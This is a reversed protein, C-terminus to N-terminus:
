VSHKAEVQMGKFLLHLPRVVEKTKLQNALEGACTASYAFGHLYDVFLYLADRRTSEDIALNAIAVNFREAFMHVPGVVPNALMAELLGPYARLTDVYSVALKGLENEWRLATKPQYVSTVISSAMSELLAQKSEFYHYIAMPDVELHAAISRISPLKHSSVTLDKAAEM